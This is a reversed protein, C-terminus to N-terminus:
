MFSLLLLIVRREDTLLKAHAHNRIGQRRSTVFEDRLLHRLLHVSRVLHETRSWMGVLLESWLIRHTATLSETSPDYGRVTLEARRQCRDTKELALHGPVLGICCLHFLVLSLDM